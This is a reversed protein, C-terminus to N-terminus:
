KRLAIKRVIEESELEDAVQRAKDMDFGRPAGMDYTTARYPKARPSRGLAEMGARLTRDVVEKFPTDTDHAINKLARAVADDITLTTRV